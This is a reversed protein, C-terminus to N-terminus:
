VLLQLANICSVLAAYKTIMNDSTNERAKFKRRLFGKVFVIDPMAVAWGSTTHIVAVKDRRSYGRRRIRRQWPPLAHEPFPRSLGALILTRRFHLCHSEWAFDLFGMEKKAKQLGAGAGAAILQSRRERGM